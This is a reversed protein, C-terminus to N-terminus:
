KLKDIWNEQTATVDIKSEKKDHWDFRNAFFLKVLPAHVERNTFNKVLWEEWFGECKEKGVRLSYSFEPYKEVWAYFTDRSIDIDSCFRVISKGEKMAQYLKFPIDENYDTPRGMKAM